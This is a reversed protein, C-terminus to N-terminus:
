PTKKLSHYTRGLGEALLMQPRWNLTEIAAQNSLMSHYIDGDRAPAQIKQVQKSASEELLAVLNNVSTQSQTSINYVRNAAYQPATLAQCNAEAVDGVYIFDRTQGGDGFIHVSQDLSIKRTFISVVGGEGGDGQREGYVNAYRFAVYNIGHIQNYLALYKESTLKTLGYFSMPNLTCEETIPLSEVNGYVAASSAFVIRKVGTQRCAELVNVLGLLNVKCDIDPHDISYPVATQAALHVVYDFKEQVFVNALESDVIDMEFFKARADINNRLGTSLNDLVVVEWGKSLMKDVTHSGIFGAGGTILAKM